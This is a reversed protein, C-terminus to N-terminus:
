SFGLILVLLLMFVFSEALNIGPNEHTFGYSLDDMKSRGSAVGRIRWRWTM